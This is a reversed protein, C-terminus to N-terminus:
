KFATMESGIGIVAEFDIQGKDNIEVKNLDVKDVIKEASRFVAIQQGLALFTKAHGTIKAAEREFDAECGSFYIEPLVLGEFNDFFEASSRRDAMKKSFDSLKQRSLLFRKELSKQQNTRAKAAQATIQDFEDNKQTISYRVYFFAGVTAAVLLLAIYFTINELSFGSQKKTPTIM